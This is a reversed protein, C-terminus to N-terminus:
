SNGEKANSKEKVSKLLIYEVTKTVSWKKKDALAKLKEYTDPELYITTRKM